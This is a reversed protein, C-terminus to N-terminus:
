TRMLLFLRRLLRYVVVVSFGGLIALTPEVKM